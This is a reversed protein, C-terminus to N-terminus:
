KDYNLNHLFEKIKENAKLRKLPTPKFYPDREVQVNLKLIKKGGEDIIIQPINLNEIENLSFYDFVVEFISTIGFFIVLDKGESTQGEIAGELVYWDMSGVFFHYLAITDGKKGSQSYLPYKETLERIQQKTLLEM